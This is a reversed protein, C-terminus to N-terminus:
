NGIARAAPSQSAMLISAYTASMLLMYSVPRVPFASYLLATLAFLHLKRWTVAVFLVRVFNSLAEFIRVHITTFAQLASNFLGRVFEGRYAQVHLRAEAFLQRLYMCESRTVAPGVDTLKSSCATCLDRTAVLRSLFLPWVLMTGFTVPVWAKDEDTLVALESVTM